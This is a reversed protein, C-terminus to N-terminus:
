FGSSKKLEFESASVLAGEVCVFCEGDDDCLTEGHRFIRGAIICSIQFAEM